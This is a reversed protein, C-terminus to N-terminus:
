YEPTGYGFISNSGVSFQRRRCSDSSNGEITYVYGNECKEVIGTHDPIGDGGWDFFIIMGPEPTISRDAWQNRGKFWNAGIVCGAYKPIATDLYGCQDACWSVFCACWEVHDTFGYWRWYPEGGVNGIQSAAVEVILTSTDPDYFIQGLPYYRLVHPVYDKDGYSSWGVQEATKISFEIANAKSYEGYKNLAWTIYGQGYNYGQLALKIHDMDVPSESGAIELCDALNQVGVEISYEPDTISGPAHPYRTNFNCESCQMPETTRGGSEQMMVAEILLVYEGIGYQKAYKQIIPEYAKVEDSVPIVEIDDDDSAFMMGAFGMVVLIVVIILLTGGGAALASILEQAAQAIAKAARASREAAKKAFAAVAGAAKKVQEAQKAKEVSGIFAQRMRTAASPAAFVRDATKITKDSLKLNKGAKSFAKAQSKKEPLNKGKASAKQPFLKKIGSKQGSLTETPVSDSQPTPLPEASLKKIAQGKIESEKAFQKAAAKLEQEQPVASKKPAEYGKVKIQPKNSEEELRLKLTPEKADKPKPATGPASTAKSEVIQSVASEQAFARSAEVAHIQHETNVPIRDKSANFMQPETPASKTPPSQGAPIVTHQMSATIEQEILERKAELKAVFEPNPTISAEQSRFTPTHIQVASERHKIDGGQIPTIQPVNIQIASQQAYSKGAEMATQPTNPSITGSTKLPAANDVRISSARGKFDAAPTNAPQTYVPEQHYVVDQVFEKAADYASEPSATHQAPETPPTLSEAEPPADWLPPEDPHPSEVNGSAQSEKQLHEMFLHKGAEAVVSIGHSAESVVRDATKEAKDNAYDSANEQEEGTQMQSVAAHRIDEKIHHSLPSGRDKGKPTDRLEKTKMEKM